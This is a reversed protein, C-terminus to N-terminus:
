WKLNFLMGGALSALPGAILFALQYWLPVCDSMTAQNDTKCRHHEASIEGRPLTHRSRATEFDGLGRRIRGNWCRHVCRNRRESHSTLTRRQRFVVRNASRFSLAQGCYWHSVTWASASRARLAYEEALDGMVVERDREPLLRRLLWTAVRPPSHRRM